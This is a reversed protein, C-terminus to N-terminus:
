LNKQGPKILSLRKLFSFKHSEHQYAEPTLPILLEIYEILAKLGESASTIGKESSYRRFRLQELLRVVQLQRAACNYTRKPLAEAEFFNHLSERHLLFHNRAAGSLAYTLLDMKECDSVNFERCALNFMTLLMNVFEDLGGSFTLSSVTQVISSMTRSDLHNKNINVHTTDINDRNEIGGSNYEFKGSNNSHNNAPRPAITSHSVPNIKVADRYYIILQMIDNYPIKLFEAIWIMQVLKQDQKDSERLHLSLWTSSPVEGFEYLLALDHLIGWHYTPHQLCGDFFLLSAATLEEYLINKIEQVQQKAIALQKQATESNASPTIPFPTQEHWNFEQIIKACTNQVTAEARNGQIQAMRLRRQLRNLRRVFNQEYPNASM